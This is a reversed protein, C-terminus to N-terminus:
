ILSRKGRPIAVLIGVSTAYDVGRERTTVVVEDREEISCVGVVRVSMHVMVVAVGYDYNAAPLRQAM